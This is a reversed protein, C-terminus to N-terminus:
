TNRIIFENSEDAARISRGNVEFARQAELLEVLTSVVNVNSAELGGQQVQGLGTDDGPTGTQPEGSAVTQKYNNDGLPELGEPNIFNALEIKGIEQPETEDAIQVSVTGDSGITITKATEPVTMEPQLPFGEANVIKGESNLKFNGTRSYVLEGSPLLFQFFGKGDIYVDLPNNTNNFSGQTFDKTIASVRAGKGMMVGVPRNTDETEQAGQVQFTQYTLDTSVLTGKKFGPTNVNALNHAINELARGQVRIGTQATQLPGEM